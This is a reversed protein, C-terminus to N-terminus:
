HFLSEKTRELGDVVADKEKWKFGLVSMVCTTVIEYNLCDFCVYVEFQKVVSYRGPMALSVRYHSFVPIVYFLNYEGMPLSTSTLSTFYSIGKVFIVVLLTYPYIANTVVYKM